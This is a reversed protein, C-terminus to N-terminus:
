IEQVVNNRVSVKTKPKCIDKLHDIVIIGASDKPALFVEGAPLNGCEGPKTYSGNDELVKANKIDLHFDTGSRTLVRAKSAKSLIESAKKCKERIENYDVDVARLFM